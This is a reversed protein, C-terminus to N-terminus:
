TLQFMNSYVCRRAFPINWDTILVTHCTRIKFENGAEFGNQRCIDMHAQSGLWWTLSVPEPLDILPDYTVPALPMGECIEIEKDDVVKRITVVYNGKFKRHVERDVTLEIVGDDKMPNTIHVSELNVWLSSMLASPVFFLFAGFLILWTFPTNRNHLTETTKNM